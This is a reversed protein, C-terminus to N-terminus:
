NNQSEHSCGAGLVVLSLVEIVFLVVLVRVATVSGGGGVAGCVGRGYVGGVLGGNVGGRGRNSNPDVLVRAIGVDDLVSTFAVGVAAVAVQLHQSEYFTQNM